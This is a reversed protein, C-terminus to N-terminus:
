LIANWYSAYQGSTARIEWCASRQPTDPGPPTDPEWPPPHRKPPTQDRPTGAEPGLPPSIGAHLPAAGRVSNKVCVESFIVKGWSLQPCDYYKDNSYFPNSCAVEQKQSWSAVVPGTLCKHSVPDKFQGWNM